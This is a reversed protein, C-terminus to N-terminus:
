PIFVATLTVERLNRRGSIQRSSPDTSRVVGVPTLSTLRNAITHVLVPSLHSIELTRSRGVSTRSRGLTAAPASLSRSHSTPSHAVSPSLGSNVTLTDHAALLAKRSM